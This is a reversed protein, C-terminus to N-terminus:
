PAGTLVFAMKFASFILCSAIFLGCLIYLLLKM